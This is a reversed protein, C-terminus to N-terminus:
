WGIFGFICCVQNQSVQHIFSSDMYVVKKNEWKDHEFISDLYTAKPRYTNGIGMMNLSVWSAWSYLESTEGM